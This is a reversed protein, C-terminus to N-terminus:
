HALIGPSSPRRVTIACGPSSSSLSRRIIPIKVQRMEAVFNEVTEPSSERLMRPVLAEALDNKDCPFLAATRFIEEKLGQDEMYDNLFGREVLADLLAYRAMMAVHPEPSLSSPDPGGCAAVAGLGIAVDQRRRFGAPISRIADWLHKIVSPEVEPIPAGANIREAAAQHENEDM